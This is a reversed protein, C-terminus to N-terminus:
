PADWGMKQTIGTYQASHTRGDPYFRHTYNARGAQSMAIAYSEIHTDGRRILGANVYDNYWSHRTLGTWSNIGPNPVSYLQSHNRKNGLSMFTGGPTLEIRKAGTFTGNEHLQYYNIGGGSKFVGITHKGVGQQTEFYSQSSG